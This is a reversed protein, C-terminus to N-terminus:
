WACSDRCSALSPPCATQTSVLYSTCDRCSAFILPSTWVRHIIGRKYFAIDGPSKIPNIGYISDWCCCTIVNLYNFWSIHCLLDSTFCAPIDRLKMQALWWHHSFWILYVTVNNKFHAFYNNILSINYTLAWNPQNTPQKSNLPGKLCYKLRYRATEWLSPSPSSFLISSLLFTWVVGVGM